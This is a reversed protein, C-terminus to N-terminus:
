FLLFFSEQRETKGFGFNNKFTFLHTFLCFFKTIQKYSNILYNINFYLYKM